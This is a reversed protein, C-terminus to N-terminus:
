ALPNFFGHGDQFEIESPDLLPELTVRLGNINSLIIMNPDFRIKNDMREGFTRMEPTVKYHRFITALGIQMQMLALRMAICNRPGDGFPLYTFPNRIVHPAFRDPNFVHPNVYFEPDHHLAYIPIYIISGKPIIM